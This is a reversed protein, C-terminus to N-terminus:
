RLLIFRMFIDYTQLCVQNIAPFYQTLLQLCITDYLCDFTSKLLAELPTCGAFFGNVLTSNPPHYRWTEGNYTTNYIPTFFAAPSIPNENACSIGDAILDNYINPNYLEFEGTLFIESYDSTLSILANTNLSSIYSNARTVLRLYNIFSIIRTSLSSKFFQVTVNM